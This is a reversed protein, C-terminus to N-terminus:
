RQYVLMSCSGTQQKARNVPATLFYTRGTLGTALITRSFRVWFGHSFANGEGSQSQRRKGRRAANIYAGRRLARDDLFRSVDGWSLLCDDRCQRRIISNADIAPGRIIHMVVHVVTSMRASINDDRPGSLGIQWARAM